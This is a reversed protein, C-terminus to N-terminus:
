VAKRTLNQHSQLPVSVHITTGHMVKSDITIVGSILRVRESMSTLGLGKGQMAKELDFGRGSDTIVLHIEGSQELLEVSVKKVGSHKMANNVAEQLVRFLSLGVELPLVSQVDSKFDIKMKQREAFEKCWSRIGAVVGLYELKSSHLDHSMSQVDNSIESLRNRLGQVRIEVESPDEQLQELEMSLMALRQNIDDHLERGIRAREHEQAEILKRTMRSLIDEARKIDTIDAVMGIVRSIQRESDFFARGRSRLWIPTGDAAMVRYTIDETPNEPTLTDISAVKARDDPHIKDIFQQYTLHLPETIRLVELCEPSRAVVDTAVDWDFSYMRGAQAALHFREESDRLAKEAQKRETIDHLICAARDVGDRGQVPYYSAFVDRKGLLPYTYNLEFRVIHGRFCEELNPKVIAEFVEKEVFEPVLRGVVQESVLNRRKLFESNAMLCRFERDVVVIMEEVNEIAKEYERLREEDRKRETVDAVIGIIRLMRGRADFFARGHSEVCVVSGDSRIVRYNSNAIPKAPTLGAIAAIFRERDDPHVKDFMQQRTLPTPKGASGLIHASQESRVVQDTSADWDFAYMRGAQIALRLREESERVTEDARLRAEMEAHKNVIQEREREAHEREAIVAALSLGSVSLVAFFVDLLVANTFADDGAFPGSGLATEITAITAIALISFATIGLGFRIAAWIIVPLVSFAMVHLRVPIWPLDGFIVLCSAALLLLLALLEAIRDREGLRLFDTFRLALPTVLLVGTADGLWYILWAKGLGSYAQVHVAYFVLVGMSASLVASGLGGLAILSLVDSLRTLSRRFNVLRYLLFAGIMAAATTAAAQGLAALHPVPSFFAVVFAASAVAIWVRHGYIVFAALAVGYAPWVPGLNNSRINTTAQGLKGALLYAFFVVFINILYRGSIRNALVRPQVAQFMM